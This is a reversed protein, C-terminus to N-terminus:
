AVAVLTMTATAVATGPAIALRAAVAVAPAIVLLAAIASAVSLAVTAAIMLADIVLLAAVPARRLLLLRAVVTGLALAPLIARRGIDRLRLRLRLTLKHLGHILGGLPRLALATWVLTRRARELLLLLSLRLCGVKSRVAIAQRLVFAAFRAAAPAIAAATAAAAAVPAITGITAAPRLLLGPLLARLLREVRLLELLVTQLHLALRLHLLGFRVSLAFRNGLGGGSGSWAM